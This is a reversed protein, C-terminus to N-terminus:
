EDGAKQEENKESVAKRTVFYVILYGIGISFCVLSFFCMLKYLEDSSVVFMMILLSVGLLTFICGNLLRTQLMEEATKKLSEFVDDLKEPSVNTEIAKTMVEARRNAKNNMSNFYFWALMIPLLVCVGLPVLLAVAEM